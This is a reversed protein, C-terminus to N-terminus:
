ANNVQFTTTRCLFDERLDHSCVALFSTLVESEYCYENMSLTGSEVLEFVQGKFFIAEGDSRRANQTSYVGNLGHLKMFPLLENHYFKDEVEQLALIDANYDLFERYLIQKRYEMPLVYKPCQPYM